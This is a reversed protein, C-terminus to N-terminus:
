FPVIIVSLCVRSLASAEAEGGRKDTQWFNALRTAAPADAPASTHPAHGLNGVGPSGRLRVDGMRRLVM